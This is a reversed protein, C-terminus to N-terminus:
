LKGEKAKKQLRNRREKSTFGTVQELFANWKKITEAVVDLSADKNTVTNIDLMTKSMVKIEIRTMAGYSSVCSGNEVKASGFAAEMMKRLGDDELNGYNGKKIDYDM